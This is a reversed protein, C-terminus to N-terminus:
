NSRLILHHYLQRMAVEDVLMQQIAKATTYHCNPDAATLM